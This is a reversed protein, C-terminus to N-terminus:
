GGSPGVRPLTKVRLTLTARGSTARQTLEIADFLDLAELLRDIRTQVEAAPLKHADALSAAVPERYTRLYGAWGQLALRVLPVEAGEPSRTAEVGPEVPQFRRVAEPTSALVLYGDKWAFAPQLGPPWQDGEIVRVEVPGQPVVRLRLRGLRQSNYGLVVLRAVFDLGDLARQQVPVGGGGPRLRLVATLSPLWHREGAGPPAVCVGWDPGLHRLIETLLDSGFVAGVSREVADQVSQKAEATLFEGGAEVLPGFPLRGAAAFLANDPFSPWVASPRSVEAFLRRAPAPLDETRARVAVGFALDSDLSVFLAAGDLTHWYHAFTRLFAGEAGRASQAKQQLAPEFARPNVWWVLLSREVGLQQLRRALAPPELDAPPSQRDRDIAAKLRAEKDTLAFVSGRLLYYEDGDKKQRRYYAQGRYERREVGLVEGSKQQWDNLRDFVGAILDPRRAHVLLLGQEAEPQGPPGPTYALVVADGLIDDRLQEWSVKLTARLLADVAALKLAEPADRFSKGFHSEALRAAFPSRELRALQDRLNQLVVCFGADDPVLRLLEDRPSAASASPLPCLASSLFCLVPPLCGTLGSRLLM